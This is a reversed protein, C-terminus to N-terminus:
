DFGQLRITSKIRTHHDEVEKYFQRLKFSLSSFLSVPMKNYFLHSLNLSFVCVGTKLQFGSVEECSVCVCV